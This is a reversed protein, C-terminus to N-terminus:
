FELSFGMAFGPADGGTDYALDLSRAKGADSAWGIGLGFSVITFVDDDTDIIMRRDRIAPLEQRNDSEWPADNRRLGFRPYFTLSESIAAIKLRYEIGLSLNTVDEFDIGDAMTSDETADNWFLRQADVTVRLPLGEFLYVTAGVQLQGPWDFQTAFTESVSFRFNIPSQYAAGLNVKFNRTNDYLGLLLGVGGGIGTDSMKVDLVVPQPAFLEPALERFEGRSIAIDFGVGLALHTFAGETGPPSFRFDHAYAGRFRYYVQEFQAGPVDTDALQSMPFKLKYPSTFCFGVAHPNEPKGMQLVVGLYSPILAPESWDTVAPVEPDAGSFFESDLQLEYTTYSQYALSLADPQTSIGAPNLWVSVPDDEFATYSGGMAKTRAGVQQDQAYAASALLLFAVSTRM